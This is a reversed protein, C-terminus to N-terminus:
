AKIAVMSAPQAITDGSEQDCPRLSSRWSVPRLGGSHITRTYHHYDHTQRRSHYISGGFDLDNWCEPSCVWLGTLAEAGDPSGGEEVERTDISSGCICCETTDGTVFGGM